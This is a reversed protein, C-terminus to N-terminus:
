AALKGAKELAAVAAADPTIKSLPQVTAAGRGYVTITQGQIKAASDAVKGKGDDVKALTQAFDDKVAQFAKNNEDIRDASVVTTALTSAASLVSSFPVM